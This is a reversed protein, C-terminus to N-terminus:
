FRCKMVQRYLTANVESVLKYTFNQTQTHAHRLTSHMRLHMEARTGTPDIDSSTHKYTQRVAKKLFMVVFKAPAICFIAEYARRKEMSQSLMYYLVLICSYVSIQM